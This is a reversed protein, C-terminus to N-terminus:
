ALFFREAEKLEAGDDESPFLHGYVDATLNITLHGLREQVVKIPLELGGDIKRSICWSAYFHRLAHLGPYKPAVVPKGDEDRVPKGKGDLVPVTIGAAIQAPGLGRHVINAHHEIEGVGTPFVLNRESKPCRLKWERLASVVMPPLPVTREGAESKPKDIEKYRDARQRVHLKGLKLDMDPWCLGRLESARLGTFAATLLLTRWRDPAHAIIAKVEERTPVHEGIKLKGRKRREAQRDKGRKRSSKLSRVVNTAVLGREQADSLMTGLSVLVRKTMAQSRAKGDALNGTRLNDAFERILPATLQALRYGGLYPVIHLRLHQRYAEVSAQELEAAECAKIWLQGAETVTPTKGPAIHMGKSLNVAVQAKRADADKKREFTEIHRSGNVSYDIIWAEKTEGKRTTWVRKRVSM